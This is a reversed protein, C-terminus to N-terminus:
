IEYSGQLRSKIIQPKGSKTAEIHQVERFHITFKENAKSQILDRLTDLIGSDFIKTEPIFELIISDLDEQVIRFQRIAPFHEMIGTFFHVILFKGSRTRVIDTDRGVIQRLMPFARGCTCRKDPDEKIALDGLYYRILPMKLGDLRTVLVYGLEGPSVERGDADVLEVKVHPSLVHYSGAECQGAIVFGETCGYTDFVPARFANEISTRYHSFMKDGWSIVSRFRPPNSALLSYTYLGSAYGGFVFDGDRITAVVNNVEDAHLDFAQRYTTRLIIDKIRKIWGRDNTMGLQLLPCGLRYGSWEWLLTQIAQTTSAEQKSMYVEGQVGSSGSSSEKILKRKDGVIFDDIRGKIDKKYLIPFSRLWTLSDSPEDSIELARYHAVNESAHRLLRGLRESELRHLQESNFWQIRRWLRLEKIFRTGLIADGLPLIISEILRNRLNMNSCLNSDQM